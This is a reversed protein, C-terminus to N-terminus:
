EEDAYFWDHRIIAKGGASEIGEKLKDADFPNNFQIGIPLHSLWENCTELSKGTASRVLHQIDKAREGIELICVCHCFEVERKEVIEGEGEDEDEYKGDSEIRKGSDIEELCFDKSPVCKCVLTEDSDVDETDAEGEDNVDELDIDLVLIGPEDIMNEITEQSPKKANGNEECLIDEFLDERFFKVESQTNIHQEKDVDNLRKDLEALQRDLLEAFKQSELPGRGTSVLGGIVNQCGKDKNAEVTKTEEKLRKILASFDLTQVSHNRDYILAKPERWDSYDYAESYIPLHAIFKCQNEVMMLATGTPMAGLQSPTILPEKVMTGNSEVMRDGCRQSWEQLTKWSNTSFGITIGICSIIIEAKSKGYIDVLQSEGSQLILMLRLNRSRGAVLLFPLSPISKGVSGLEELIINVRLGLSGGRDQAIRVLHQSLQSVLIGSLQSYVDTEEPTIIIIAFPREADLELINLDDESLMEMLGRSRSFLEMGSSAVSHISARTENPGTVYTALNRKALSSSPLLDYLARIMTGGLFRNESQEMMIAINDLTAEESSCKEFLVYTLGKAYNIASDTWFKDSVGDYPYVGAWVESIMSAAIDQDEPDDSHFLRYPATLPNWRTTNTSRPKRFDIVFTQYHEPIFGGNVRYGEGKPDLMILSEGKEFVQRMFPLSCCASKGKGTRGIVCCHAAGDEIYNKGNEHYVIPGAGKAATDEKFKRKIENPTDWREDRSM